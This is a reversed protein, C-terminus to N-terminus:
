CLGKQSMAKNITVDPRHFISVNDYEEAPRLHIAPAHALARLGSGPACPGEGPGLGPVWPEVSGGGHRRWARSGWNM